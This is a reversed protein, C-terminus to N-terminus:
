SSCAPCGSRPLISVDADIPDHTRSIVRTSLSPWADQGIWALATDLGLAAAQVSVSAPFPVYPGECGEGAFVPSVGGVVSLFEGNREYDCLCRFCGESLHTKTLARVATGPGDIWVHILPVALSSKRELGALWHGLAQEGTADIILDSGALNVTRVDYPVASLNASTMGNKLEAALAEAKNAWLHNEGVRHRGVNGPQLYDFDILRLTGGGSGAGAKVLMDALYGGITGCGIQTINLAALTKRKPINRQVLYRDDIQIVQMLMVRAKFIPINQKAKQSREQKQLDLVAIAYQSTPSEIVLAMLDHQARYARVISATIKRRCADDLKSQWQLMEGVTEPPWKNILPRPPQRTTIKEVIGTFESFKRTLGSFKARTRDIDDTCVLGLGGDLSLM